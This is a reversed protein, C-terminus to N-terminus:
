KKNYIRWTGASVVEFKNGDVKIASLDDLAYVVNKTSKAYDECDKYTGWGPVHPVIEFNVYDLASLDKLGPTNKDGFTGIGAVGISPTALISSASGGVYVKNKLNKGLWQDFGTRRVQNLLHFTNGGSLAVIDVGKLRDQWNVDAASIDVIDIQHYGFRWFNIFDKIVWDKNGEEANAATPIYGVKVDSSPKAVLEALADAIKSDSLGASTLLLKM